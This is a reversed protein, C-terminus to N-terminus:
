PPPLSCHEADALAGGADVVVDSAGVGTVSPLHQRLAPHDVGHPRDDWAPWAAVVLM